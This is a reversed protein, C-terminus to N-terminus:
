RGRGSPAVLGLQRARQVAESRRHAGLKAYISRMHTKVTNPSLYLQAGIDPATLNSPLYRLVRLEADSLEDVAETVEGQPHTVDLGNLVDLIDALLAGHGTRQQRHRVLLDLGGSLAFPLVLGQPEALDLAREVGTAAAQSNGLQDRAVADFVLAQVSSSVHVVPVSGDVVPALADTAADPNDEALEIAALAVRSEGWRRDEDTMAALAARARSAEGLRTQTQMWLGRMQATLAAPATLRAPLRDAAAFEGAAQDLRGVGLQLLGTALHFLLATVPEAEPRLAQTARELWREAESFRGAWTEKCALGVLAVVVFPELAWGHIDALGVAQEWRQYARPLSRLYDVEGLYALCGMEIYPRGIRQALDLGAELHVQADHLRGSWLEAAGLNMLATAHLDNWLGIDASRRPELLAIAKAQDVAAGFDGRRRAISLRVNLTTQLFRAQREPPVMSAQAEALDIYANADDLSGRLMQDLAFVAALEGNGDPADAPFADLLTHVTEGEGNLLLSVMHDALLFAARNWDGGAQAHRVAETVCGHDALWEAAARHLYPLREPQTRRL